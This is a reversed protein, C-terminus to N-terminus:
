EEETHTDTVLRWVHRVCAAGDQNLRRNDVWAQVQKVSAIHNGRTQGMVSCITKYYMELFERLCYVVIHRPESYKRHRGGNVLQEPTIGYDSAVASIIENPTM